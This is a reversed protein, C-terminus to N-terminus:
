PYGWNIDQQKVWLWSCKSCSARIKVSIIITKSQAISQSCGVSPLINKHFWLQCTPSQSASLGRDASLETVGSIYFSFGPFARCLSPCSQCLHGKWRLSCSEQRPLNVSPPINRRKVTWTLLYKNHAQRCQNNHISTPKNTQKAVNQSFITDLCTLSLITNTKNEAVHSALFFKHLALFLRTCSTVNSLHTASPQLCCITPSPLPTLCQLDEKQGSWLQDTFIHVAHLSQGAFCPLVRSLGLDLRGLKLPVCCGHLHTPCPRRHM